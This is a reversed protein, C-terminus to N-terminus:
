DQGMVSDIGHSYFRNRLHCVLRESVGLDAAIEEDTQENKIGEILGGVDVGVEAAM